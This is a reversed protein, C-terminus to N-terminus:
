FCRECYCWKDHRTYRAEKCYSWICLSRTIIKGKEHNYRLIPNEMYTKLSKEFARPAVRDNVRDIANTNAYGEIIRYKHEDINLDSFDIDFSEVLKQIAQPESSYKQSLERWSYEEPSAIAGISETIESVASM